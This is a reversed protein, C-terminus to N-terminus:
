GRKIKIMFKEINKFWNDSFFASQTDKGRFYIYKDSIKSLIKYVSENYKLVGCVEDKMNPYIFVYDKYIQVDIM